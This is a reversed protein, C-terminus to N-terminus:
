GRPRLRRQLTGNGDGPATTLQGALAPLEDLALCLASQALMTATEGYGPDGGAVETRLVRGGAEAVFRVRFWANEQQEPSPGDGALAASPASRTRDAGPRCGGDWRARRTRAVATPLRRVLAYHGYSFDPGYVPLARASRRVVVPDLTPLPLGWGRGDPSRVPRRPLARVRRGDATRQAREVTAAREGVASSQRVRSFARVATQYTGGSVTGSVRVFGSMRIPVDDPLQRVTFLAGLDYPISDFGCAHVLRAGTQEAGSTTRSGCATSSSRSM